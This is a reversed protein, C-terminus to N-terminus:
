LTAVRMAAQEFLSRGQELRYLIGIKDNRKEQMREESHRDNLALTVLCMADASVFSVSGIGLFFFLGVDKRVNRNGLVKDVCFEFISCM